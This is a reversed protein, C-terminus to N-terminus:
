DNVTLKTSRVEQRQQKMHGQQTEDSDPFHKRVATTTLGPWTVYNRANIADLCTNKVPHGATAHLYRITHPILPLRYVNNVEEKIVQNDSTSITWLKAENSKEGTLVPPESTTINITGEKHITVGEERPCFVTKYGEELM